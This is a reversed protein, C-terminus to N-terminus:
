FGFRYGFIPGSLRVDFLAGGTRRDVSLTRYGVRLEQKKGTKLNVTGLFQWTSESGVGFGGYDGYLVAALKPNAQVRARAGIVPDIWSQDASAKVGPVAGAKFNVTSDVHWYRAGGVLDFGSEKTGAVRYALLAEAMVDTAEGRVSSFPLAPTSRSDAFRSYLLDTLLSVRDKRAEGEVMLGGQIHELLDIFSADIPKVLGGAGVLGKVSTGWLYPTIGFEWKEPRRGTGGEGESDGGKEAPLASGETKGAGPQALALPLPQVAAEWPATGVPATERAEEGDARAAAAGAASVVMGAVVALAGRLLDRGTNAMM